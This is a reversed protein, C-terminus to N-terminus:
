PGVWEREAEMDREVREGGERKDRGREEERERERM